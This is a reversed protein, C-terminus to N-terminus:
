AGAQWLGIREYAEAEENLKDQILDNQLKRKELEAQNYMDILNREYDSEALFREEDLEALSKKTQGSFGMGRGAFSDITRDVAKDFEIDYLGGERYESRLADKLDAESPASYYGFQRTAQGLLRDYAAKMSADAQATGMGFSAMFARYAPDALLEPVAGLDLLDAETYDGAPLDPLDFEGRPDEDRGYPILNAIDELRDRMDNIPKGDPGVPNGQWDTVPNGDWGVTPWLEEETLNPNDNRMNQMIWNRMTGSGHGYGGPWMTMDMTQAMPPEGWHPPFRKMIEAAEPPLNPYPVDEVIPSQDPQPAQWDPLSIMGGGEPPKGDPRSGSLPSWTEGTETNVWTTGSFKPNDPTWLGPQAQPDWNPPRTQMPQSTIDPKPPTIGVDPQATEVNPQEIGAEKYAKEWEDKQVNDFFSSAWNVSVGKKNPLVVTEGVRILNPNKKYRPNLEILKDVTTNNAQAIGWLTDGGVVKYTSRSM